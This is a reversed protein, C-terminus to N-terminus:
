AAKREESHSSSVDAQGPRRTDVKKLLMTFLLFAGATGACLVWGVELSVSLMMLGIVGVVATAVYSTIVIQPVSMGWHRLRIAIHDPSGWLIPLGRRYRIYMVFLTDFIPFGLIFVPTLLSLPHDSPYKGIMAMAGLLLGIFMAGTDGMYIRAPHWNYKLFGLLSGILAVLMVAITQDGQLLAVVLLCTASAAGVGASLGDMIDLLNFANILGVMWFVTLTLDVWEPLAAIEIRIGSKILVFIALLQGTLKTWPTLVGFDDILGLMVVITGGLIIGLVDQRFEFTFALSMLFALYIALGGFYPVPEKQHKLRGDPADVIGYKLAAQRAIPVGYWAVAFALIFTLPYLYM